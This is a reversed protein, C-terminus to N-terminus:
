NYTAFIASLSLGECMTRDIWGAEKKIYLYFIGQFETTVDGTAVTKGKFSFAIEALESAPDSKSRSLM